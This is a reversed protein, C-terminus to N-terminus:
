MPLSSPSSAHASWDLHPTAAPFHPPDDGIRRRPGDVADDAVAVVALGKCMLETAGVEEIVLAAGVDDLDRGGRETERLPLM